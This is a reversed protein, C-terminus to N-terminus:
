TKIIRIENRSSKSPPVPLIMKFEDLSEVKILKNDKVFVCM